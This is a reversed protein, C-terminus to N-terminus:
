AGNNDAAEADAADAEDDEADAHELKVPPDRTLLRAVDSGTAAEIKLPKQLHRRVALRNAAEILRVDGTEQNIVCYVTM